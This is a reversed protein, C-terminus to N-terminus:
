GSERGLRDIHDLLHQERIARLIRDPNSAFAIVQAVARRRPDALMRKRHHVLKMAVSMQSRNLAKAIREVSWGRGRLAILREYERETWPRQPGHKTRSLRITVARPSRNLEAAIAAVTAGAERMEAARQLEQATWTCGARPRNRLRYRITSDERGLARAIAKYTMGRARMEEAAAQDADTWPRRNRTM